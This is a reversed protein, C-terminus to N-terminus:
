DIAAVNRTISGSPPPRVKKRTAWGMWVGAELHHTLNPHTQNSHSQVGPKPSHEDEIDNLESSADSM